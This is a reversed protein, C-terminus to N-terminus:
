MLSDAEVVVEFLVGKGFDVVGSLVGAWVAFDVEVLVGFSVGYRGGPFMEGWVDSGVVVRALIGAWAGFHLGVLVLMGSEVGSQLVTDVDVLMLAWVGSLIGVEVLMGSWVLSHVGFLMGDEIQPHLVIVFGVLIVAWNGYYVEVQVEGLM